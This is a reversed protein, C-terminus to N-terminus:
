NQIGNPLQWVHVWRVYMWISTATVRRMNCYSFSAGEQSGLMLYYLQSTDDFIPFATASNLLKNDFYWSVKGPVWLVGYTHFQAVNTGTPMKYSNPSNSGLNVGGVGWDHITGYYTTPSSGQGEFIDLEGEEQQPGPFLEDEVPVMWLAPWSGTVPDWAMSIEFYGYHWGRYFASGDQDLLSLTSITTDCATGGQQGETWLLEVAPTPTGSPPTYMVPSINAYPAAEEYWIGPNYWSYSGLGDPSVNFPQYSPSGGQATTFNVSFVLNYGAAQLPPTQALTTAMPAMLLVLCCVLQRWSFRKLNLGVATM